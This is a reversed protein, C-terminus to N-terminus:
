VASLIKDFTYNQVHIFGLWVHLTSCGFLAGVETFNHPSNKDDACIRQVVHIAFSVASASSSNNEMISSLYVDFQTPNVLGGRILAELAELNYKSEERGTMILCRCLDCCVNFVWHLIYM